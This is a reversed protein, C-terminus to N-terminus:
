LTKVQAWELREIYKCTEDLARRLDANEFHRKEVCQKNLTAAADFELKWKLESDLHQNALTTM